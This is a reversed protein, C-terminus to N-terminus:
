IKGRTNWYWNLFIELVNDFYNYVLYSAERGIYRYHWPEYSYGTIEDMGFPYSLIFGYKYANDLLWRGEKTDAFSVDLSNFDIATGLQHQSAGPIASVMKAKEEGLNKVWYNYVREQTEYSRYASIIILDINEKKADNIMLDLDNLIIKRLQLAKKNTKYRSTVDVLDNPVYNRDLHYDKNVLLILEEDNQLLNYLKFFKERSSENATINEAISDPLEGFYFNLQSFNELDSRERIDYRYFKKKFDTKFLETIIKEITDNEPYKKTKFEITASAIGMKDSLWATFDGTTPYGLSDNVYDSNKKLFSSLLLNVRSYNGPIVADGRSHLSLVIVTKDSSISEFLKKLAITEPESFPHSGASLLVNFLYFNPQWNDTNFNRNLDVDNDNLRRDRNYGDPNAVPLIWISKNEPIKIKDDKLLNIMAEATKITNPENGHIGAIIILLDNGNGFKYLDLPRKGFSYGITAKIHDYAFLNISLFFIIILIILICFNNKM